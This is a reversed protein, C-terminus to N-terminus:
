GSERQREIPTLGQAYRTKDRQSQEQAQTYRIEDYLRALLAGLAAGTVLATLKVLSSILNNM